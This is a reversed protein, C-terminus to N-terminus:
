EIIFAVFPVLLIKIVSSFIYELIYSSFYDHPSPRPMGLISFLFWSWCGLSVYLAAPISIQPVCPQASLCTLPCSQPSCLYVRLVSTLKMFALPKVAFGHLLVHAM